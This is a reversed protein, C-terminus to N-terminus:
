RAATTRRSSTPTTCSSASPRDIPRGRGVRESAAALDARATALREDPLGYWATNFADAHRATLELMRPTFAAVLIPMRREPPPALEADAVSHFRGELTM